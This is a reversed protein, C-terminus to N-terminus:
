VWDGSSSFIMVVGLLAMIIFTNESSLGIDLATTVINGADFVVTSTIAEGKAVTYGVVILVGGAIWGLSLSVWTSAMVRSVVYLGVSLAIWFVFMNYDM